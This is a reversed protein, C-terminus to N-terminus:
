RISLTPAYEKGSIGAGNNLKECSTQEAGMSRVGGQAGLRLMLLSQSCGKFVKVQFLGFLLQASSTIDYL